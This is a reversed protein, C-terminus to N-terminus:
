VWGIKVAWQRGKYKNSNLFGLLIIGIVARMIVAVYYYHHMEPSYGYAEMPIDHKLNKANNEHVLIAM